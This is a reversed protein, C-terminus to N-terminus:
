AAFARQFRLDVAYDNYEANEGVHILYIRDVFDEPMGFLQMPDVVEGQADRINGQFLQDFQEAVVANDVAVVVTVDGSELERLCAAIRQLCVEVYGVKYEYYEDEPDFGLIATVQRNFAEKHERNEHEIAVFADKIRKRFGLQMILPGDEQFLIANEMDWIPALDKDGIIFGGNSMMFRAIGSAAISSRVSRQGLYVLSDYRSLGEPLEHRESSRICESINEIYDWCAEVGDRIGFIFLERQQDTFDALLKEAIEDVIIERVSNDGADIARAMCGVYDLIEAIVFGKLRDVVDDEVGKMIGNRRNNFYANHLGSESESQFWMQPNSFTEARAVADMMIPMEEEQIRASEEETFGLRQTLVYGLDQEPQWSPYVSPDFANKNRIESVGSPSYIGHIKGDMYGSIEALSGIKDPNAMQEDLTEQVRTSVIGLRVNPFQQKIFELLLGASPRIGWYLEFALTDDVDYLMSTQINFAIEEFGHTERARNLINVLRGLVHDVFAKEHAFFVSQFGEVDLGEYRGQYKALLKDHQPLEGIRERLVFTNQTWFQGIVEEPLVTEVSPQSEVSSM